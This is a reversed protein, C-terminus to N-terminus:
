VPSSVRERCSARGIKGLSATESERQSGEPLTLRQPHSTLRLVAAFRVACRVAYRLLRERGELAGGLSLGLAWATLLSDQARRLESVVPPAKRDSDGSDSDPDPHPDVLTDPLAHLTDFM